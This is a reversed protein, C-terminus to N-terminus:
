SLCETVPVDVKNADSFVAHVPTSDAIQVAVRGGQMEGGSVRIQGLESNTLTDDVDITFAAKQGAKLAGLSVVLKRDGDQVQGSALAIPGERVEFPQFVEVGAGTGTTDFILGGATKTLDIEVQLARLECGTTNAIEFWDKPASEVFSVTVGAQAATALGATLLAAAALRTPFSLPM